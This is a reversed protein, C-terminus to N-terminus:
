IYYQSIFFVRVDFNKTIPIVPEWNLRSAFWSLFMVAQAANGKEYDITINDIEWLAARRQQPSFAAATLEQWASLRHWNLDAIYTENDILEQM